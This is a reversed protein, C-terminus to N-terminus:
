KSIKFFDFFLQRLKKKEEEKKKIKFNEIGVIKYTKKYWDSSNANYGLIAAYKKAEQINGIRYNVEVLRHLTEEIFVTSPYEHYINLLRKLASTWKQKKIYYRAIYLENGALQEDILDIKFKADEAYLSKPYKKIIKEFQIKALRTNNQDRSVIEIQEFLCLGLMYDVYPILAHGSYINKFKKIKEMASTYEGTDFYLYITISLARPAWETFSYYKEIKSFDEIAESIQGNNINDYASKQLKELPIKEEPKKAIENNTGCSFLTIFFLLFFIKFIIKHM